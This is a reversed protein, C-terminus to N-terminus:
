LPTHGRYRNLFPRCNEAHIPNVGFCCALPSVLRRPCIVLRPLEASRRNSICPLWIRVFKQSFFSVGSLRQILCNFCLIGLPFHTTARALLSALIRQCM